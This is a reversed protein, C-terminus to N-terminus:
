TIAGPITCVRRASADAAARPPMSATLAARAIPSITGGLLHGLQDGEEGGAAAAVQGAGRDVEVTGAVDASGAHASTTPPAFPIPRAIAGGREGRTAVLEDDRVDVECPGLHAGRLRPPRATASSTV